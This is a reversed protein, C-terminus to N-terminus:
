EDEERDEETPKTVLEDELKLCAEIVTDVTEWDRDKKVVFSYGVPFARSVAIKM